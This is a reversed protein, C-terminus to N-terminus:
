EPVNATTSLEQLDLTQGNSFSRYYASYDAPQDGAPQDGNTPTEIDQEALQQANLLQANLFHVSHKGVVEAQSGQVVLATAEDIGIGLLKPHRKIVPILDPLRGRQTFHQDIAVGPLFAFGREYGEAMMVTNGLPHGRVLFEGQITAGASSGGIVGGRALVDHFLEVANTNDYADVFNWQRGGGFWVGTARRLAQQFEESAVEDPLMQPLITVSAVDASRLFGPIRQQRAVAPPVATPLFVLHAQPGGALAIFRDIIPQPLGGGGVIVLSGNNVGVSTTQPLGPDSNAARALAARRWQTLDAIQGSALRLQSAPRFSCAALLCTATGEGVVRLRRGRVIVATAEDIGLGFRHPHKSVAAISRALRDRQSFHQDIIAGPLLDLGSALEPAQRGSAIMVRSMIAAGASTGGIVGGRQLLAQLEEEVATGLFADALRQQQGGSIWVGNADRLMTALSGTAEAATTEGATQDAAIQDGPALKINELGASSLWDRASNAAQKPDAAATGIVVVAGEPGVSNVFAQEAAPPIKGGGVIILTGGIGQPDIWAAEEAASRQAGRGSVIALAFFVIAAPRWLQSTRGILM